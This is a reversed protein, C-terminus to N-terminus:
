VRMESSRLSGAVFGAGAQTLGLVIAASRKLGDVQRHVVFDYVGRVVGSSLTRLVYARETALDGTSAEGLKTLRAKSFGEAFCRARFYSWTLRSSPVKHRVIASPDLMFKGDPFATKARICFETEECSLLSSKGTRGLQVAFGGAREFAQRKMLMAAGLVNRVEQTKMPLGRYSCGVAWLFEEPFWGPRNGVWLPAIQAMAGLVDSKECLLVLRSLWDPDAVADDDLFGILSGSSVAIGTNRAGSLGKEGQNAVVKIDPFEAQARALLGDNHDVVMIFEDPARAQRRLSLVAECIDGWRDFTHICIVVSITHADNPMTM